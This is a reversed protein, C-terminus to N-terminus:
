VPGQIYQITIIITYSLISFMTWNKAIKKPISRGFVFRGELVIISPYLETAKCNKQKKPYKKMNKGCHTQTIGSAGSLM